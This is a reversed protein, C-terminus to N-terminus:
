FFSWNQFRTNEFSFLVLLRCKWKLPIIAILVEPTMLVQMEPGAKDGENNHSLAEDWM